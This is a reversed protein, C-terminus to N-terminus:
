SRGRGEKLESIELILDEMKGSMTANYYFPLYKWDTLVDVLSPRHSAIARSIAPGVQQPDEVREAYMGFTKAVESFDPNKLDTAVYRENLKVMQIFKDDGLAGNNSIVVVIPLNLRSVVELEAIGGYWFETDGLFAAVQRGPAAIQAGIARALGGGLVGDYGWCLTSGPTAAKSVGLIKYCHSNASGSVSVIADERLRSALEIAPLLPSIPTREKVKTYEENLKRLWNTKLEKIAEKRESFLGSPVSMRKLEKLLMSLAVKSNGLAGVRVPYTKAIMAADCDIQLISEPFFGEAYGSGTVFGGMTVFSDFDSDVVLMTDCESTWAITITSPYEGFYFNSTEPIMPFLASAMSCMVPMGLFEALEALEPSSRSWLLRTDALSVPRESDILEKAIKKIADPNPHVATSFPKWRESPLSQYNTKHNFMYRSISVVVPGTPPTTAMRFAQHLLLHLQDIHGCQLTQKTINTFTAVNDLAKVSHMEMHGPFPYPAICVLPASERWAAFIGPFMAAMGAGSTATCVSPEGSIASYGIAAFAVDKELRPDVVTISGDRVIEDLLFAVDDGIGAFLYHVNWSKLVDVILEVGSCERM